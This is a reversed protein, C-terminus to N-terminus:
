APVRRGAAARALALACKGRLFLVDQFDAAARLALAAGFPARRRYVRMSRTRQEVEKNM